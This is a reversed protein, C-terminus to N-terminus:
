GERHQWSRTLRRFRDIQWTNVAELETRPNGTAPDRALYPDGGYEPTCSFTDGGAAVREEWVWVWWREFAAVAERFGPQRPDEVQSSQATAVRLHLHVARRACARILPELDDVWRECAVVWHSFDIVLEAEPFCALYHATAQPHYLVTGRHTELVIRRGIAEATEGLGALFRDRDAATWSDHGGMCPLWPSDTLPLVAESQRRLAELHADVSDDGAWARTWLIPLVAAGTARRIAGMRSVEARNYFVCEVGAAGAALWRPVVAEWPDPIGWLNRYHIIKM